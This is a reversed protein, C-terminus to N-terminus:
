LGQGLPAAAGLGWVVGVGPTHAFYCKGECQDLLGPKLMGSLASPM